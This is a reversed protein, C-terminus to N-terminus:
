LLINAVISKKYTIGNLITDGKVYIEELDFDPSLETPNPDNETSNRETWHVGDMLLNFRREGYTVKGDQEFVELVIRSGNTPLESLPFGFPRELSGIGEIWTDCGNFTIRKRPKGDMEVNDVKEVVYLDNGGFKDGEKLSFDYLLTEGNVQPLYVTEVTLPAYIKQGEERFVCSFTAKERGHQPYAYVKKYQRGNITTDGDVVNHYVDLSGITTHVYQWMTGNVGIPPVPEEESSDTVTVEAGTDPLEGLYPLLRVKYNTLTCGPISLM